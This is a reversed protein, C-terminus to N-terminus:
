GKRQTEDLGQEPLEDGIEMVGSGGGRRAPALSM